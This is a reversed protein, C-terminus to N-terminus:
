RRAYRKAEEKFISRESRAHRSLERLGDALDDSRVRSPDLLPDCWFWRDVTLARITALRDGRVGVLAEHLRDPRQDLPLRNPASTVRDFLDLWGRSDLVDFQEDLFGAVEDLHGAEDPVVVRALRHYAVAGPDRSLYSYQLREHVEDWRCEGALRWLLLRRLWPHLADGVLWLQEALEGRLDDARARSMQPSDEADTVSMSASWEVLQHLHPLGEPLQGDMIGSRLVALRFEQDNMAERTAATLLATPRPLGGTMRHVAAGYPGGDDEPALVPMAVPYCWPEESKERVALWGAHSARDLTTVPPSRWTRSTAVVLLPDPGSKAATLAGVLAQGAPTDVDDLLLLCNCAFRRDSWKDALDALLASCLIKEVRERHGLQYRTLDMINRTPIRDELWGRGKGTLLATVSGSGALQEAASLAFSAWPGVEPVPALLERLKALRAPLISKGKVFNDLQKELEGDSPEAPDLALVLLAFVVRPTRVRRFRMLDHAIREVMRVVTLNPDDHLDLRAMPAASKKKTVASMVRGLLGPNDQMDAGLRDLLETKGTGQQGLLVM